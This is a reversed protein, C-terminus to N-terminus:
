VGLEWPDVDLARCLREAVPYTAHQQVGRWRYRAGNRLTRVSTQTRGGLLRAVRRDDVGLRRAVERQTLGSARWADRFPALPVLEPPPPVTRRRPPDRLPVGAQKVIRLASHRSIGLEAAVEGTRFGQRYLDVALARRDAPITM